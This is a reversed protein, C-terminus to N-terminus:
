YHCGNRVSVAVAILERQVRTLPGPGHMLVRYLTFHPRMVVSHVGHIRLINDRDDVQDDAPIEGDRLYKVYAM